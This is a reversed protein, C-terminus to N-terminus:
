DGAYTDPNPVSEDTAPQQLMDAVWEGVTRTKEDMNEACEKLADIMSASDKGGGVHDLVAQQLAFLARGTERNFTM